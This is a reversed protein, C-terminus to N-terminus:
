PPYGFAANPLADSATLIQVETWLTAEHTEVVVVASTPEGLGGLAGVDDEETDRVGGGGGDVVFEVTGANEYGAATALSVAANAMRERLEAAIVPSPSEEIIKQHRRQVSCDREFLHVISGHADGLVQVEVHKPRDVYRELFVEGAEVPRKSSSGDFGSGPM